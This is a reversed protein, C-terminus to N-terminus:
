SLNTTIIIVITVVIIIDDDRAQVKLYNGIISVGPAVWQSSGAAVRSCAAKRDKADEENPSVLEDSGALGQITRSPTRHCLVM